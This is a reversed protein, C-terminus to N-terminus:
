NRRLDALYASSMIGVALLLIAIVDIIMQSRTLGIGFYTPLAMRTLWFFFAVAFYYVSSWFAALSFGHRVGLWLMMMCAIGLMLIVPRGMTHIMEGSVGSFLTLLVLILPGAVSVSLNEQVASRIGLLMTPLAWVAMALLFVVFGPEFFLVPFFFIILLPAFLLSLLQVALSVIAAYL